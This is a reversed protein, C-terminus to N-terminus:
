VRPRSVHRAVRRPPQVATGTSWWMERIPLAMLVLLSISMVSTSVLLLPSFAATGYRILWPLAAESLVSGFALGYLIIKIRDSVKTLSFIHCLIFFMISQFFLHPHTVDLLELRTKAFKMSRPDPDSENGLYWEETGQVTLQTRQHYNFIGVALAVSITICFLTILIKDSKRLSHLPRRSGSYTTM